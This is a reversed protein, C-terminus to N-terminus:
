LGVVPASGAVTLKWLVFPLYCGKATRTLRFEFIESQSKILVSFFQALRRLCDATKRNGNLRFSHGGILNLGGGRLSM